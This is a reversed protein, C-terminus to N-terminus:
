RVVLYPANSANEPEIIIKLRRTRWFRILPAIVLAVVLLLISGAALALAVDERWGVVKLTALTSVASVVAASAVIVTTTRTSSTGGDAM